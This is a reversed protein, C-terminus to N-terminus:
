LYVYITIYYKRVISQTVKIKTLSILFYEELRDLPLMLIAEVKHCGFEGTGPLLCIHGMALAIGCM